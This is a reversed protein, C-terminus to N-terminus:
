LKLAFKGDWGKSNSNESCKVILKVFPFLEIGGTAVQKVARSAFNELTRNEKGMFSLISAIVSTVIAAIGGIAMRSVGVGSGLIPIFGILEIGESIYNCCM